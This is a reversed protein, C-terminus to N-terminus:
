NDRYLGLTFSNVPEAFVGKPLKAPPEDPLTAGFEAAMVRMEESPGGTTLTFVWDEPGEEWVIEPDGRFGDRLMPRPPTYNPQPELAWAFHKEVARLTAECKRKELRRIRTSM